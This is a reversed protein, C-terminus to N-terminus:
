RSEGQSDATCCRLVAPLLCVAAFACIVLLILMILGLRQMPIFSSFLLFSFCIANLGADLMTLRSREGFAYQLAQEPSQQQQLATRYDEVVYLDFDIAANIGLATACATAQDLPIQLLAMALVVLAYAVIFPLCIAAAAPWSKLFWRGQQAQHQRSKYRCWLFWAGALLLVMPMTGLLNLPKRESIYLDTQHYSHLTGFPLINLTPFQTRALVLVADAQARLTVSDDAPTSVWLVLGDNHWWSDALREHQLDWRILQLHEYATATTQQSLPQMVNLQDVVSVVSRVGSLQRLQQSLRDVQRLFERDAVAPYTADTHHSPSLYFSLQAFGTAQPANLLHRARDVITGPLYDMPKERVQILREAGDVQSDHWLVAMVMALLLSLSMVLQRLSQTPTRRLWFQVAYRGPASLIRSIQQQWHGQRSEAVPPFAQWAQQLQPLAFQVLLRQWGLGLASLVGVELVGRIGIQSLGLFNLAAIFLVLNFRPLQPNLAQWAQPSRGACEVEANYAELARVNLSIGSVILASLVLLFYVRERIPEAPSGITLGLMDLLPISGRTLVFSAFILLSSICAQKVSGLALWAAATALCLGLTCYWLVDSILAYHMLGRAIAWGSLQLDANAAVPTIDNKWLLWELVTISRQELYQAVLDVLQQESFGEPLFVFIQSYRPGANRQASNAHGLLLGTVLPNQQLQQQALQLQAASLSPPLYAASQISGDDQQYHTLNHTLSLVAADPFLQTMDNSVQRIRSVAEPTLGDPLAVVLGLTDGHALGALAQVQQDAAQYPNDADLIANSVIGGPVVQLNLHVMVGLLLVWGCLLGRQLLSVAAVTTQRVANM